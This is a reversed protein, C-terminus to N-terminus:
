STDVTPGLIRVAEDAFSMDVATQLDIAKEQSGKAVFYKQDGELTDVNVKGDPHLGPMVMKDFLAKDVKTAAALIDIAEARKAADNKVFGDNYFRAGKLYAVMFRVAVDRQQAFAESFLVVAAQHGPIVEDYRVLVRAAGSEVSRTVWPEVPGAADIKGSELAAQMDSFNLAVFNVDKITLGGKHLYTALSVEGTGDPGPESYTRGKLDAPEKIENALPARIVLAQYGHGPNHNGRDAVIPMAIGRGIANFLGAGIASGAVQLQNQGLPALLQSALAVQTLELTIGQEAFYDKAQAIFVAGDAASPNSGWKLTMASAPAALKAAPTAVAVQAPQTAAPATPARQETPKSSTAPTPATPAASCAAGLGAAAVAMALRLFVRRSRYAEINM